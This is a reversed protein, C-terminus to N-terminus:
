TGIGLAKFRKPLLWRSLPMEFLHLEAVVQFRQYARLMEAAQEAASDLHKAYNLPIRKKDEFASKNFHWTEHTVGDVVLNRPEWMPVQIYERLGAYRALLTDLEQSLARASPGTFRVGDQNTHREHALQDFPIFIERPVHRHNYVYRELDVLKQENVLSKIREIRASDRQLKSEIVPRLFALVGAISGCTYLVEKLSEWPINM